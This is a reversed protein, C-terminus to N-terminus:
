APILHKGIASVVPKLIKSNLKGWIVCNKVHDRSAELSLESKLPRGLSLCTHIDSNEPLVEYGIRCRIRGLWVYLVWSTLHYFISVFHSESRKFHWYVHTFHSVVGSISFGARGAYNGWPGANYTINSPGLYSSGLSDSCSLMRGPDIGKM